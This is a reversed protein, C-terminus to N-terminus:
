DALLGFLLTAPLTGVFGDPAAFERPARTPWLLASRLRRLPRAIYTGDDAPGPGRAAIHGRRTLAWPARQVVMAGLFPNLRTHPFRKPRYM